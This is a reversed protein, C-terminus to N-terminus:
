NGSRIKDLDSELNDVRRELREIRYLLSEITQQKRPTPELDGGKNEDSIRYADVAELYEDHLKNCDATSRNQHKNIICDHYAKEATEAADKLPGATAPLALGIILSISIISKLMIAEETFLSVSIPEQTALYVVAKSLVCIKIPSAFNIQLDQQHPESTPYSSKVFGV